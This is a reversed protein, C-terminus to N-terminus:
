LSLLGNAIFGGIIMLVIMGLYGIGKPLNHITVSAHFFHAWTLVWLATFFYVIM